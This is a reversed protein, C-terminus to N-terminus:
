EFIYVFDDKYVKTLRDLIENKYQITTIFHGNRNIRGLDLAKMEDVSAYNYEQPKWSLSKYIYIRYKCHGNIDNGAYVIRVFKM